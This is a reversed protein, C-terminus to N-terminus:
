IKMKVWTRHGKYPIDISLGVEIIRVWAFKNPIAHPRLDGNNCSHAQHDIGNEFGDSDVVGRMVIKNKTVFLVYDGRNPCNCDKMIARGKSQALRRVEPRNVFDLEYQKQNWLKSNMVVRWTTAMEAM